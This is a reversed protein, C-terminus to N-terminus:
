DGELQDRANEFKRALENLGAIIRAYRANEEDDGGCSEWHRIQDDIADFLGDIDDATLNVAVFTKAM